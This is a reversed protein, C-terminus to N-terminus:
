IRLEKSLQKIWVERETASDPDKKCREYLYYPNCRALREREQEENKPTRKRRFICM